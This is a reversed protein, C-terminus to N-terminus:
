RASQLKEIRVRVSKLDEELQTATSELEKMEDEPVLNERPEGCCDSKGQLVRGHHGRTGQCSCSKEGEVQDEDVRNKRWQPGTGDKCPM